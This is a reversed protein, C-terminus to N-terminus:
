PIWQIELGVSSGGCGGACNHQVTTYKGIGCVWKSLHAEQGLAHHCLLHGLCQARGPVLREDKPLNLDVASGFVQLSVGRIDVNLQKVM